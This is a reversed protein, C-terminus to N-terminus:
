IKAGVVLLCCSVVLGDDGAFFCVCASALGDNEVRAALRPCCPSDVFYPIKPLLSRLLHYRHSTVDLTPHLTFLLINLCITSLGRYFGVVGVSVSKRGKVDLIRAMTEDEAGKGTRANM